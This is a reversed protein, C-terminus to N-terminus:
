GISNVRFTYSSGGYNLWRAEVEYIYDNGDDSVLIINNNIEVSKYQGWLDMNSGGGNVSVAHEANWRRVVVTNAPFDDSFRLEIKGGANNLPITVENLDVTWFDSLDLAWVDLPHHGTACYVAMGHSGWNNSLQVAQFNQPPLSDSIFNVYLQPTRAPANVAATSANPETHVQLGNLILDDIGIKQQEIANKLSIREGSEFTLMIKDSRISTLYYRYDSDEYIFEMADDSPGEWEEILVLVNSSKEYPIAFEQEFIYRDFDGPQRVYLITKQFKYDSDPLEGYLWRWDVTTLESASNPFLPYGEDTFVWDWNEIIPEALTWTGNNRVYLAYDSGYLYENDSANEFLFSLGSSTIGSINMTIGHEPIDASNHETIRDLPTDNAAAGAPPNENIVACGSLVFLVTLLLPIMLKKLM